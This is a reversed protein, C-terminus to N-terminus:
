RWHISTEYSVLMWQCALSFFFWIAARWEPLFVSSPKACDAHPSDAFAGALHAHAGGAPFLCAQLVRPHDGISKQRTRSLFGNVLPQHDDPNPGESPRGAAAAALSRAGAATFALWLLPEGFQLDRFVTLVERGTATQWLKLTRGDGSALTRGEPSCALAAVAHKHGALSRVWRRTQRDWLQM